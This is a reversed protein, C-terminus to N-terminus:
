APYFSPDLIAALPWPCGKAMKSTPMRMEKAAVDRAINWQNPLEDVLSALSENRKRMVNLIRRSADISKKLSGRRGEEHWEWKAMFILLERLHKFVYRQERHSITEIQEMIGKMDLETLKGQEYLSLQERCWGYFDTKINTGM